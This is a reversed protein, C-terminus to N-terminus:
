PCRLNTRASPRLVHRLAGIAEGGALKGTDEGLLQALLACVVGRGALIRETPLEAITMDFRLNCESPISVRRSIDVVTETTVLGSQSLVHPPVVLM